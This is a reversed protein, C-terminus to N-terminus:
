FDFCHQEALRLQCYYDDLTKKPVDLMSAAEYLSVKKRNKPGGTWTKHLARWEKVLEIAESM